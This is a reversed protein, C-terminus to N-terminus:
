PGVPAVGEIDDLGIRNDTPVSSSKAEVPPPLAPPSIWTSRPYGWLDALQDPLHRCGVRQPACWADVSLQEFQADVDALAGDGLVHDLGLSRGGLGPASEQGVVGLVDDRDVEEGHRRNREPHDVNEQDQAVSPSPDDVEVHAGVRCGAPGTLLDSLGEGPVRCRAIEDSVPVADVPREELSSDRGDPDLM